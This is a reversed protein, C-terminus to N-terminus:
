GAGLGPLKGSMRRLAKLAMASYGTTVEPPYRRSTGRRQWTGGLGGQLPPGKGAETDGGRRGRPLLTAGSVRARSSTGGGGAEILM